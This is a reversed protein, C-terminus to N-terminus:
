GGSNYEGERRVKPPRERFGSLHEKLASYSHSTTGLTRSAPYGRIEGELM